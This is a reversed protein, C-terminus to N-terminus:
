GCRYYYFNLQILIYKSYIIKLLHIGKYTISHRYYKVILKIISIPIDIDINLINIYGFVVLNDKNIGIYKWNLDNINIDNYRKIIKNYKSKKIKKSKNKIGFFKSLM